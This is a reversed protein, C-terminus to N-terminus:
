YKNEKFKLLLFNLNQETLFYDFFHMRWFYIKCSSEYMHCPSYIIIKKDVFKQFQGAGERQIDTSVKSYNKFNLAGFAVCEEENCIEFAIVTIHLFVVRLSM